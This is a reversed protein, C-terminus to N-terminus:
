SVAHGLVVSNRILINSIRYYSHRRIVTYSSVVNNKSSSQTVYQIRTQVLVYTHGQGVMDTSSRTHGLDYGLMM